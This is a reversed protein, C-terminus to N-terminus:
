KIITKKTFLDRMYYLIFMTIFFIALFIQNKYLTDQITSLHNIIDPLIEMAFVGLVFSLPNFRWYYRILILLTGIWAMSMIFHLLMTSGSNPIIFPLSFFLLILLKPIKNNKSVRNYIYIIGVILFMIPMTSEISNSIINIFPLHKNITPHMFANSSIFTPHHITLLTNISGLLSFVGISFLFSILADKMYPKRNQRNFASFFNPWALSIALTLIGIFLASWLGGMIDQGIQKIFFVNLSLETKYRHLHIASNMSDILQIFFILGAAYLALKWNPKNTKILQLLYRIGMIGIIMFIAIMTFVHVWDYLYMQSKERTWAEPLEYGSGVNGVYNGHVNFKFFQKADGVSAAHQENGEFRFHYDTRNEKEDIEEKILDMNSLDIKTNNAFKKVLALAENKSIFPLSATDSLTEYFHPYWPDDYKALMFVKYEKKQGPVFFRVSWGMSALIDNSFFDRLKEKDAHELIYSVKSDVDRSLPSIGGRSMWKESYTASKYGDLDFGRSELYDKAIGTAEMRNKDMRSFNFIPDDSKLFTSILFTSLIGIMGITIGVKVRKSNIPNYSTLFKTKEITDKIEIKEEVIKTDVTNVLHNAVVFGGNRRYSITSYILPLVIIGACIAGSTIFYANSSRLLILATLFANFSFHWILTTLIGHKIFIWSIFIGMISVEIARIYFPQAPYNAHAVGWIISSVLIAFVKSNTYKQLFPISFMRSMSEESIAPFFGVSLVAVWPIYTAYADFNPVSRPSWAGLENSILYYITQFALTLCTLSIGIIASNFFSKSQMGQPSFIHRFSMHHPYQERYLPESGAILVGISLGNLIPMVICPMLIFGMIISAYSNENDAWYMQLPANNIQMLVFLIAAVAGYSFATKWRVDKKQSRIFITIFILLLTINLGIGGLWSLLNNKERIKAYARKKIDPIKIWENYHGIESGQVKLTIRHTSGEVDFKKEKWEFVHDWRNPLKETISKELEWQNMEINISGVLFFKAISLAKEQSLSDGPAEEQIRHEYEALNGTTSIKVYYEEKNQPIFWRNKWYYSNTNNLIKGAEDPPLAYQLHLNADVLYGFRHAHMFGSIDKGRNALFMKAKEHAEDKTVDMQISADPFVETFYNQVILLSVISICFCFLIFKYDKINLKEFM